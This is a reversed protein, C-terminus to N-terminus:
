GVITREEPLRYHRQHERVALASALTLPGTRGLFMLVALLLRAPTNFDDTIGTSLGATSFAAVAEFLVADFPFPSLLLLAFTFPVVVGIGLLAVALAQRQNDNSIRRRGVTVDPEGRMESWIVYALLGFTTVKIGGAVGASGGGIFMLIDHIFLTESRLSAIDITNFGATRAAASAFFAAMLKDPAPLPGLTHPNRAEMAAISVMGLVLLPISTLVTIRTLVTWTRPKWWSRALEFVVPFGLGGTIVAAAVVFNVWPDSVYRMLNDPHISFGANNFASVAHFVGSYIAQDPSQGYTTMFRASLVVAVVLECSVAFLVVNRIVRRVDAANLARRETQAVLLARLGVRRSLVAAVLTALTMIGLGGVQFLALIAIQGFRSWYTGTDVIVMGTVCVAATATFLATVFDPRSGDATAIPLSLLGTGVAIAGAFAGCITRGPHTFGARPGSGPGADSPTYVAWGRRGCRWLLV